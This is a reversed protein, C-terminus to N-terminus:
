SQPTNLTLIPNLTSIHKFFPSTLCNEPVQSAKLTQSLTQITYANTVFSRSSIYVSNVADQVGQFVVKWTTEQGCPVLRRFPGTPLDVMIHHKRPGEAPYTSPANTLLHLKSSLVERHMVRPLRGFSPHCSVAWSHHCWTWDFRRRVRSHRLRAGAIITTPSIVYSRPPRESPYSLIPSPRASNM